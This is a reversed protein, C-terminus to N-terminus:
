RWTRARPPESIGRPTPTARTLGHAWLASLTDIKKFVEKEPLKESLLAQCRSLKTERRALDLIEEKLSDPPESQRPVPPKVPPKGRSRKRAADADADAGDDADADAGRPDAADATRSRVAGDDAGASEPSPPRATAAAESGLADLRAFSSARLKAFSNAHRPAPARFNKALREWKLKEDARKMEERQRATLRSKRLDWGTLVVRTRLRDLDERARRRRSIDDIAKWSAANSTALHEPEARPKPAPAEVASEPPQLRAFSLEMKLVTTPPYAIGLRRLSAPDSCNRTNVGDFFRRTDVPAPKGVYRGGGGFLSDSGVTTSAVSGSPKSRRHGGLKARPIIFLARDEGIVRTGPLVM